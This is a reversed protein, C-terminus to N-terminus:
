YGGSGGQEALKKRLVNFEATTSAYYTKDEKPLSLFYVWNGPTPDLAAQLAVTGPNGIPGPPIGAHKRTNYPSDVDLQSQTLAGPYDNLAYRVTSDLGLTPFDTTDALRNYLVRTAKGRDNRVEREVISALTVLQLPTVGMKKAGAVLNLQDAEQNFRAVMMRLVEVATANPAATYTAPFLFGEVGKAYSPLGLQATQKTAKELEAIPIGTGKSIIPLAQRVSLGEPLTFKSEARSSPDLLLNFAAKGSMEKRLRYYGPQLKRARTDDKAAASTFAAASKVVGAGLLVRGIQGSTAGQPVQVVVADTGNGSFDPNSSGGLKGLLAGIGVIVLVLVLALAAIAVLLRGARTRRKAPRRPEPPRETTPLLPDTM